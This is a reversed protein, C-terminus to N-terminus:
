RAYLQVALSIIKAMEARLVPDAPGFTGTPKGSFDMYGSVIGDSAAKELAGAFETSSTVDSFRKGTAVPVPVHFAQLLTVVVESRSASRSVPVSGDSFVAWGSNEACRIFPASWRDLASVNKLTGSGACVSADLGAATVAIKAVQEITVNDAPGFLGTPGTEPDRYGEFIGKEATDRIFPAFWEGKPVDRLVVPIGSVRVTVYTKDEEFARKSSLSAGSMSREPFLEKASEAGWDSELREGEEESQNLDSQFAGIDRLFDDSSYAFVSIPIAISVGLIM